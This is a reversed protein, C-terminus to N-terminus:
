NCEGHTFLELSLVALCVKFFTNGIKLSALGLLLVLHDLKLGLDLSNLLAVGFALLNLVLLAFFLKFEELILFGM